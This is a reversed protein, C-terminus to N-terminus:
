LPSNRVTHAGFRGRHQACYLAAHVYNKAVRLIHGRSVFVALSASGLGILVFRLDGFRWALLSLLLTFAVSATASALIVAAGGACAAALWVASTGSITAKFALLVAVTHVLAAFSRANLSRVESVLQPTVAYVLVAFAAVLSEQTLRFSVFYLLALHVCDLIPSVLWFWRDLWQEPLLALLIPFLPPYSQRQDQLLYQPLTVDIRKQRRIARAYALHYWSDIGGPQRGWHVALRLALAVCVLGLGIAATPLDM